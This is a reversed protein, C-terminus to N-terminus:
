KFGISQLGNVKVKTISRGSGGSTLVTTATPTGPSLETCGEDDTKARTSPGPSKRQSKGRTCLTLSFAGFVPPAHCPTSNAPRAEM